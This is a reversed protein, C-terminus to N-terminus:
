ASERAERAAKVGRSIREGRRENETMGATIGGPDASAPLGLVWERCDVLVPCHRCTIKAADIKLDDDGPDMLDPMGACRARMAWPGIPAGPHIHVTTM